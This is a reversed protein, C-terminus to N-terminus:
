KRRGIKYVIGVAGFFENQTLGAYRTPEYDATFRVAFRPRVKYDAWGGVAYAFALENNYVGAQFPQVGTGAFGKDFSGYSGGVLLHMGATYKESQYLRASPGFLFFHESM